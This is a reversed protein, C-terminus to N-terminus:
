NRTNTSERVEIEEASRIHGELIQWMYVLLKQLICRSEM